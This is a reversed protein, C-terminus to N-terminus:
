PQPEGAPHASEARANTLGLMQGLTRWAIGFALLDTVSGLEGPRDALPQGWPWSDLTARLAGGDINPGLMPDASLLEAEAVYRDRQDHVTYWDDWSQGGRRTRLRIDDPVRGEAVLRAFGRPAGARAWASPRIAAALDAVQQTAFPDLHPATWGAHAATLGRHNSGALWRLYRERATGASTWSAPEASPVWTHWPHAPPHRRTRWIVRASAATSRAAHLPGVRIGPLQQGSSPRAIQAVDRLEGRGAHFGAAYAHDASFAANGNSGM